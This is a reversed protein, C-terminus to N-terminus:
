WCVSLVRGTARACGPGVHVRGERPFVGHDPGAPPETLFRPDDRTLATGVIAVVVVGAIVGATILGIKIIDSGARAPSPMAASALFALAVITALLTRRGKMTEGGPVGHGPMAGRRSGGAVAHNM